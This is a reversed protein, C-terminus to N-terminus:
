CARCADWTGSRHKGCGTWGPLCTAPMTQQEFAGHHPTCPQDITLQLGLAATVHARAPKRGSCLGGGSLVGICTRSLVRPRLSAAPSIPNTPLLLHGSRYALRLHNTQARRSPPNSSTTECDRETIVECENSRCSEVDQGVHRSPVPLGKSLQLIDRCEDSNTSCFSVLLCEGRQGLM